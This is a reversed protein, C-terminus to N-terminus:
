DNNGPLRFLIRATEIADLAENRDKHKRMLENIALALVVIRRERASTKRAYFVEDSNGVPFRFAALEQKERNM